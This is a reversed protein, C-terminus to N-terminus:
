GVHADSRDRVALATAIRRRVISGRLIRNGTTSWAKLRVVCASLVDSGPAACAFSMPDADSLRVGSRPDAKFPVRLRGLTCAMAVYGNRRDCCVRNELTRGRTKGDRLTSAGTGGSRWM